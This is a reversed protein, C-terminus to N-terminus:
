ELTALWIDAEKPGTSYYITRNDHSIKFGSVEYPATSFAPHSKKTQSDAIYLTSQYTVIIRRDDNMWSATRGFDTIKELKGTEIWYVFIGRSTRGGDEFCPGVLKKGDRSWMTAVFARDPEDMTALLQPTQENWARTLDIIHSSTYEKGSYALRKGDPSWVPYIVGDPAFTIQTLGSGDPKITWIQYNGSRDSHFAIRLGDPSWRPDIDKFADQTLNREGTGDKKMVFIDFHLDGISDHAFLEDNPSLTPSTVSKTGQTVWVAQGLTKERVPDFAVRQINRRVITQVYAMKQGDRSLCIHQTSSSPLTVPEPNSLVKGTEEKIRVRWVNMNGGRASVFYLYAGDPSWVPNWDDSEDDTVQVPDGGTASITWVDRQGGSHRNWYAVRYGNPSWAPQVADAESIRRRGNSTVDVVWLESQPSGRAIPDQAGQTAFVIQTGDHSWSPNFGFETLRRASEGSAGMVFIGGGDRESRFAIHEGDPSYAPQTDDSPSDDTLNRPNGGGVRQQFIDLNGDDKKVYVVSKGDPALSPFLEEGAAGTIQRASAVVPTKSKRDVDQGLRLFAWFLVATALIAVAAISTRLISLRRVFRPGGLLPAGEQSTSSDIDRDLRMLA